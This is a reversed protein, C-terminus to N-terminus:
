AITPICKVYGGIDPIQEYRKGRKRQSCKSVFGWTVVKTNDAISQAISEPLKKGGVGATQCGMLRIEAKPSFIIEDWTHTMCFYREEEPVDKRVKSFFYLQDSGSHGSYLLKDIARLSSLERLKNFIATMPFPENYFKRADLFIVDERPHDTKWTRINNEFTASFYKVSGDENKITELGILAITHLKKLM